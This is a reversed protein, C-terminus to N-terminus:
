RRVVEFAYSGAFETQGGPRVGFLEVEYHQANLLDKPLPVPVVPPRRARQALLPGSRWVIHNTAPDRLAVEYSAARFADLGLELPVTGPGPSVALVPVPALGRTQPMLVLAISFQSAARADVLATTAAATAREQDRLQTSLASAREDAATALNQAVAVDRGLRINQVLLVGAVVCLVVMAAALWAWRSKGHAERISVVEGALPAAPEAPTDIAALLRKAFAAKNRRRPSALYFSEFRRLTDGTLQGSAYADVLDDEILRLREALEDDVISQEDLREAEDDPLAGLVYRVLRDDHLSDRPGLRAM